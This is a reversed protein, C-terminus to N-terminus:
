GCHFPRHSPPPPNPSTPSQRQLNCTEAFEQLSDRGKILSNMYESVGLLLCLCPLTQHM